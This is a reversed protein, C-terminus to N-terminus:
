EFEVFELTARGGTAMYFNLFPFEPEVTLLNTVDEHFEPFREAPFHDLLVREEDAEFFDIASMYGQWDNNSLAEGALVVLAVRFHTPAEGCAPLREGNHEIIEDMTVLRTRDSLEDPSVTNGTRDYCVQLEDDIEVRIDDPHIAIPDVEDAHALGMLYLEMPAFPLRNTDSLFPAFDFSFAQLPNCTDFGVRGGIMAGDVLVNNWHNNNRPSSLTLNVIPNPRTAQVLEEPGTLYVSWGHGIEHLSPGTVIQASGTLFIYGRLGPPGVERSELGDVGIGLDFARIGHYHIPQLDALIPPVLDNLTKDVVFMVFDYDGAIAPPVSLDILNLLNDIGGRPDLAIALAMEVIRNEDLVLATAKRNPSMRTEVVSDAVVASLDACGSNPLLACGTFLIVFLQTCFRAM